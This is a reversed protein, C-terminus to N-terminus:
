TRVFHTGTKGALADLCGSISTIIARASPNSTSELFNVCAQVKPGMSGAPFEGSALHERAEELTLRDLAKENPTGYGLCVKEVDTLIVLADAQAEKALLAATLDKDIVAEVGERSGDPMECIPIGGGGCCVIVRGSDYLQRIIDLEVIEKPKPSPVVRRYGKREVYVVNWGDSRKRQNVTDEDFYQGIPKTPHDFAPDNADVCVTTVITSACVPSGRSIMENRVCQCIMYGMGAQTDAVCLGLDIPYVEHRSLEVRRLVTGVQPGNGHILLLKHGAQILDAIHKATVRSQAFQSAVDGGHQGSSIANGGLALIIKLPM